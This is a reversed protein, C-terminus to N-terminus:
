RKLASTLAEGVEEKLLRDKVEVLQKAFEKKLDYAIKGSAGKIESQVFDKLQKEISWEIWTKTASTCAQLTKGGSDVPRLLVDDFRHKILDEISGVFEKEGYRGTLAIEESLFNQMRLKIDAVITDSTLEAFKKFEDKALDKSAKQRIEKVLADKFLYEFDIEREFIDDTDVTFTLEM